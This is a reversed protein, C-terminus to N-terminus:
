TKQDTWIYSIYSIYSVREPSHAHSVKLMYTLAWIDALEQNGAHNDLSFHFISKM